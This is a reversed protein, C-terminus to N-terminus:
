GEAEKTVAKAFLAALDMSEYEESFVVEAAEEWNEMETNFLEQAIFYALTEGTAEVALNAGLKLRLIIHLGYDSEVIGSIEGPELEKTATEFSEVMEGPLFTYGDLYSIMGPDEGYQVILEDFRKGLEDYDTIASLEELLTEAQARKEAIEEDSLPAGEDDTTKFLIHKARMYEMENAKALVDEDSLKEGNEGYKDYQLARALASTRTLYDFRERSLFTSELSKIYDEETGGSSAVNNEWAEEIDALDEETLEVGEQAAHSEVVRYLKEMELASATIYERYTQTEDFASAADWDTIPGYYSEVSTVDRYYWSFLDGWTIDLGNVTVMVTDPPYSEYVPTYDTVMVPETSAEAAPDTSEAAEDSYAKLESSQCGTFAAVCLLAALVLPLIKKKM